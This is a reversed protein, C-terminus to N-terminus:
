NSHLSSVAIENKVRECEALMGSKVTSRGERDVITALLMAQNRTCHISIDLARIVQVRLVHLALPCSIVLHCDSFDFSLVTILDYQKM